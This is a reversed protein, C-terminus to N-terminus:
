CEELRRKLQIPIKTNNYTITLEKLPFAKVEYECNIEFNLPDKVIVKQIENKLKAGTSSSTPM